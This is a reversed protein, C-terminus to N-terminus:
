FMGQPWDAELIAKSHDLSMLGTTPLKMKGQRDIFFSSPLGNVSDYPQGAGGSEVAFVTYNLKKDAAFDKIMKETNPPYTSIYSLSLIALKDEGITERLEKLHPVEMKCPPCWTAWFVIIVDKGRYDSLRHEKGNIDTLTFDPTEKGILSSYERAPGWTRARKVIDVLSKNNEAPTVAQNNEPPTVTPSEVVNPRTPSDVRPPAQANQSDPPETRNPESTTEKCGTLIAAATLTVVLLASPLRSNMKGTQKLMIHKELFDTEVTM